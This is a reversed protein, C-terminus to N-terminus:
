LGAVDGNHTDVAVVQCGEFTVRATGVQMGSTHQYTWVERMGADTRHTSTAMPDGLQARVEECTMEPQVRDMEATKVTGSCGALLLILTFAFALLSRRRM